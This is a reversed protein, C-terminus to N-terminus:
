IHLNKTQEGISELIFVIVEINNFGVWWDYDFKNGNLSVVISILNLLFDGKNINKLNVAQVITLFNIDNITVEQGNITEKIFM